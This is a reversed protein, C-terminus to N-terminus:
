NDKDLYDPIGDGDTDDNTPDGDGNADENKTLIGDGDDDIDLYNPIGDEDTDDNKVDGDGDIDEDNNVVWDNDSDAIIVKGLDVFFYIPANSPIGNTGANGYAMGSPIFFFGSGTNEYDFSEDPYIIKEGEKFHPMGYRWGEILSPLHLWSRSSTFNLNQDFMISDLTFGRYRMQISDNRSPNKGSGDTDVYYYMKYNIDNHVMNETEVISFLSVEGNLITDIEKEDTFYHSQLFEVLVDDDILAQAVPDHTEKEDDKSCSFVIIGIFLFILYKLKM